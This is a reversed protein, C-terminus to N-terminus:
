NILDLFINRNFFMYKKTNLSIQNYKLRLQIHPQRIIVLNLNTYNSIWNKKLNQQAAGRIIDSRVHSGPKDLNIFAKHSIPRACLNRSDMRNMFSHWQTKSWTGAILHAGKNVLFQLVDVPVDHCTFCHATAGTGNALGKNSQAPLMRLERLQVHLHHLSERQIGFQHIFIRDIGHVGLQLALLVVHLLGATCSLRYLRAGAWVHCKRCNMVRCRRKNHDVTDTDHNRYKIIILETYKQYMWMLSELCFTLIQETQYKAMNRKLYREEAARQRCTYGPWGVDPDYAM